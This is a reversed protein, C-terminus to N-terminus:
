MCFHQSGISCTSFVCVILRVFFGWVFRTLLMFDCRCSVFFFWIAHRQVRKKERTNLFRSRNWNHDGGDVYCLILWVIKVWVDIATNAWLWCMTYTCANMCTYPKFMEILRAHVRVRFHRVYTQAPTQTHVNWKMQKDAKCAVFVDFQDFTYACWLVSRERDREKTRHTFLVALSHSLSRALLVCSCVCFGFAWMHALCLRAITRVKEIEYENSIQQCKM